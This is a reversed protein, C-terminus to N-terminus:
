KPHYCLALSERPVHYLSPQGEERCIRCFAFIEHDSHMLIGYAIGLFTFGTWVPLTHPFAAKLAKAKEHMNLVGSM